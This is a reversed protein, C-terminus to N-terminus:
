STCVSKLSEVDNRSYWNMGDKSLAFQKRTNALHHHHQRSERVGYKLLLSAAHVDTTHTAKYQSRGAPALLVVHQVITMIVIVDITIIIIICLPFLSFPFALTPIWIM